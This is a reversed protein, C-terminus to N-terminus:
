AVLTSFETWFLDAFRDLHEPYNEAVYTFLTRVEELTM